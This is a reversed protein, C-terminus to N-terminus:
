CKDFRVSIGLKAARSYVAAASKNVMASIQIVRVKGANKILLDNEKETWKVCAGNICHRRSKIDDHFEVPEEPLRGKWMKWTLDSLTKAQHLEMM